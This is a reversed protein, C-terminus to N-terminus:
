MEHTHTYVDTPLYLNFYCSSMCSMLTANQFIWMCSTPYSLLVGPWLGTSDFNSELLACSETKVPVQLSATYVVCSRYWSATDKWIYCYPTTNLVWRYRSELNFSQLASKSHKTHETSFQKNQRLIYRLTCSCQLCFRCLMAFWCKDPYVDCVRTAGNLGKARSSSM